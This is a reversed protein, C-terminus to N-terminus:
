YGEYNTTKLAKECADKAMKVATGEDEGEAVDVCVEVSDNEFKGTVRLMKYRVQSIKM